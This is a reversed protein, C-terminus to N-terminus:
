YILTHLEDIIHQQENLYDGMFIEGTDMLRKTTFLTYIHHSNIDSEIKELKCFDINDKVIIFFTGIINNYHTKIFKNFDIFEKVIEEKKINYEQISILKNIYLYMKPQNNSLLTYFRNICRKYYDYDDLNCLKKHNFALPYDYTHISNTEVIKKPAYYSNYIIEENCVFVPTDNYSDYTQTNLQTYNLLNLFEVFNDEICHKIVPLRSILWDFPFSETKLNMCKIIGASSCRYGLSFLKYKPECM